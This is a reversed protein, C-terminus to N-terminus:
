QNLENIMGRVDFLSLQKPSVFPLKALQNKAQKYNLFYNAIGETMYWEGRYKIFHEPYKRRREAVRSSMLSYKNQMLFSVYHVCKVGNIIKPAPIHLIMKEELEAWRMVLRARAEDSYKTIVYLFELKNLAYYPDKRQRGFGLETNKLIFGFKSKYVKEWAPEMTRIDRLVHAHKKGTIQAIEFSSITQEKNIINTM